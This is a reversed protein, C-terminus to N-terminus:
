SCWTMNSSSSFLGILSFKVECRSMVYISSNILFGDFINHRVLFFIQCVCKIPEIITYNVKFSKCKLELSMSLSLYLLSRLLLSHSLVTHFLWPHFLPHVLTVFLYFFGNKQLYKLFSYILYHKKEREEIWSFKLDNQITSHANFKQHYIASKFATIGKCTIRIGLMVIEITSIRFIPTKWERSRNKDGSENGGWRGLFFCCMDFYRSYIYQSHAANMKIQFQVRKM